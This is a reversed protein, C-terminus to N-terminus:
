NLLLVFLKKQEYKSAVEIFSSAEKAVLSNSLAISSKFVHLPVILVVVSVEYLPM